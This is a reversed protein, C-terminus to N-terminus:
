EEKKTAQTMRKSVLSYTNLTIWDKVGMREFIKNFVEELNNQKDEIYVAQFIALSEELENKAGLQGPERIGFLIPNVVEHAIFINEQARKETDAFINENGASPLPNFSVEKGDPESFTIIIDEGETGGYEAKFDDKAQQREDDEPIGNHFGIHFGGLFNKRALNYSFKGIENDTLIWEINSYYNPIPYADTGVSVDVFYCIQVLHLKQEEESLTKFNKPLPETNFALIKEPKNEKKKVNSWDNSIFFEGEEIGQRVKHFPMYDYAGIETKKDNWRVVIAFGKFIEQDSACLKAMQHANHSGNENELATESGKKEEFGSGAVMKIKRNIISNHKGSKFFIDLLFDPFLNKDGYKIWGKAKDEEFKPKQIEKNFSLKLRKVAGKKKVIPDKITGNQTKEEEAM